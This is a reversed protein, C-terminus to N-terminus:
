AVETRVCTRNRRQGRDPPPEKKTTKTTTTQKAETKIEKAPEAAKPEPKRLISKQNEMGIAVSM